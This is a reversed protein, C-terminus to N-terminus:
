LFRFYYRYRNGDFTITLYRRKLWKDNREVLIGMDSGEDILNGNVSESRTQFDTVLSRTSNTEHNENPTVLSLFSRETNM